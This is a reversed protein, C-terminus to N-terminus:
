TETLHLLFNRAALIKATMPAAGTGNAKASPLCAAGSNEDLRAPQTAGLAPPGYKSASGPRCGPGTTLSGALGKTGFPTPRCGVKRMASRVLGFRIGQAFSDIFFSISSIREPLFLANVACDLQTGPP